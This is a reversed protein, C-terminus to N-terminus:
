DWIDFARRVEPLQDSKCLEKWLTLGSPEPAEPLSAAFWRKLAGALSAVAARLDPREAEPFESVGDDPIPLITAHNWSVLSAALLNAQSPTIADTQDLIIFALAQICSRIGEKRRFMVSEILTAVLNSPPHPVKGAASLNVWHHIAHAAAAIAEDVDSNIDMGITQAITNSEALRHLLIYPLATTPYVSLRRMEELNQLLVQWEGEDAWQMRPLTIRAMFDGFRAATKKISDLNLLDNQRTHQLAVKDTAWWEIAKKYLVKAEEATWDLVGADEGRLQLVPKSALTAEFILPQEQRGVAISFSGNPNLSVAGKSPLSLIYRKIISPVDVDSPAPFQLFAIAPIRPLNPTNEPTREEWLLEGFRRQQNETMLGADYLQMLRVVARFRAEGSESSTRKLLWETFEAIKAALDPNSMDSKRIRNTPFHRMPDPSWRHQPMVSQTDEDLLPARILEPLWELLLDNEAAFFLRKFWDESSDYLATDTAVEPQRHFQVVVPFTQRLEVPDVRFALRSLVESLVELLSRSASGSLMPGRLDALERRFIQLCWAYLRKALSPAMSAVQTRTLLGGKRLEETKGARILLVPAWFDDFPILWHCANKLAAGMITLMPLRMPLGVQEYLRICAFAPLYPQVHDWGLLMSVSIQGPDFGRTEEESKQWKPPPAKLAEELFEIYPWPSCDWAKLEEWRDRFEDDIKDHLVVQLSSSEVARLLYMCWGELSLLAIDQGHGRIARRIEELTPRLITRAEGLQDLEALLGAKWMAANPSNLSPQWRSLIEKASQREINWMARLAAEYQSRDSYQTHNKVVRDVKNKLDIWRASNYTERAERLLGFAVRFWADTIEANTSSGQQLFRQSLTITRATALSEFLENVAKHFSEISEPFLPVMAAEFRWNIERFVLIRDAAPWAEAFHHLPSVWVKTANWLESRKQEPPILWGPYHTREFRWRTIIGRVTLDDLQGPSSSSVRPPVSVGAVPIPLGTQDSSQPVSKLNPWIEPRPKRAAFLSDLFWEISTLHILNAPIDKLIPSTDIATVGRRALLLRQASGANLPGVLYIPAHKDGLEDRIWGTWELFNPDDGSFGLLVFSNELLSQRVTNVFPAFKRPYTRYDEETVIFPTTPRFSGHLKVIRPPFSTTLENVDIVPYYTRGPVETRELLTDYNTTFVDAWPLELLRGHLRGPQYDSDPIKTRILLDLKRRDFAAEYESAIRLPNLSNFRAGRKSIEDDTEGGHPPDLEDFMAKVLERWTPFRAHVGPLPEANLSFGAGVM